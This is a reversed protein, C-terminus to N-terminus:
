SCCWGEVEPAVAPGRGGPDFQRAIDSVAVVRRLLKRDEAPSIFLWQDTEPWPLLVREGDPSFAPTGFRGFGSFVTQERREGAAIRVLYLRSRSDPGPSRAMLVVAIRDGDPSTAISNVVTRAPVPPSRLPEGDRSFVRIRSGNAVVLRNPGAWEVWKWRIPTAHRWLLDGTDADRTVVSRSQAYTIVNPELRPDTGAPPPRWSPATPKAADLRVPPASADGPVVWIAEREVFAIRYGSPAWRPHEIRGPRSISWRVEGTPDLDVATLQNARAAAVNAANPSFTADRYDGLLRRSGDERVLWTGPRSSILVEGGSPLKTLAERQVAPEDDIADAMWERVDAGAPTLALAATAAVLAGAVGITRGLRRGAHAPTRGRLEASALAVARELAADEDPPRLDRVARGVERDRERDRM